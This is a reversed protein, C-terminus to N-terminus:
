GAVLLSRHISQTFSSHESALDNGSDQVVQQFRRSVARAMRSQNLLDAVEGATECIVISLEVIDPRM